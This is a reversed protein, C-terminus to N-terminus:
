YAQVVMFDGSSPPTTSSGGAATAQIQVSPSTPEIPNTHLDVNQLFEVYYINLRTTSPVCTSTESNWTQDTFNGSQSQTVRIQDTTGLYKVGNIVMEVNWATGAVRFIKLDFTPQSLHQDNVAIGETPVSNSFSTLSESVYWNCHVAPCKGTGDVPSSCTKSVNTFRYAKESALGKTCFDGPSTYGFIYQNSNKSECGLLLLIGLYALLNKSLNM